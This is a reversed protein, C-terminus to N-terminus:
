ISYITQSKEIFTALCFVVLSCAIRPFCKSSLETGIMASQKLHYFYYRRLTLFRIICFYIFFGKKEKETIRNGQYLRLHTKLVNESCFCIYVCKDQKKKKFLHVLIINGYIYIHSYYLISVTKKEILSRVMCMM